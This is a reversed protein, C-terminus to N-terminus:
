SHALRQLSVSYGGGPACWRRHREGVRVEQACPERLPYQAARANAAIDWLRNRLRSGARAAARVLAIKM